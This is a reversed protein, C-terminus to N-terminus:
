GGVLARLRRLDAALAGTRARAASPGAALDTQLAAYFRAPSQVWVAWGSRRGPVLGFPEQPLRGANAAFWDALEVLETAAPTEPLPTPASPAPLDALHIARARQDPQDPQDPRNSAFPAAPASLMALLESKHRRLAAVEAATLAERPHWRLRDGAAVLSVGRARLGDLLAAAASM